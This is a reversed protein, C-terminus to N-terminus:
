HLAPAPPPLDITFVCGTGELNRVRLEGGNAEVSRRSISLGLGVGTRDVGRQEFPQFLQETKGAPLGGCEDEIEIIVRGATAQASLTVHGSPRTFKFANQLLNAIASSLMQRDADVALDDDVPSITFEIGRAKAEMASSIQLDDILERISIPERQVHLGDTLRVEALSRDILDRLGILSRDLVSGTAGALAVKGSKIAQFALMASNLLNRLEHALSGLRENM